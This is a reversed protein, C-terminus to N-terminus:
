IRDCLVTHMKLDQPFPAFHELLTEFYNTLYSHPEKPTYDSNKESLQCWHCVRSFASCATHVTSLSM